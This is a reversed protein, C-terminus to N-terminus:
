YTYLTFGKHTTKVYDTKPSVIVRFNSQREDFDFNTKKAADPQSLQNGEISTSKPILPSTPRQSMPREEMTKTSLGETTPQLPIM